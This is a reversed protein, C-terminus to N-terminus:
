SGSSKFIDVYDPPYESTKKLNESSIEHYAPLASVDMKQLRPASINVDNDVDVEYAYRSSESSDVTIM